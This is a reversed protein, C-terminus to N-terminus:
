TSTRKVILCVNGGGFGFSNSAAYTLDLTEAGHSVYDLPCDPDPTEYHITPPLIGTHVSM